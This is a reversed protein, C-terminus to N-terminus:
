DSEDTDLQREDLKESNPYHEELRMSLPGLKREGEIRQSRPKYKMIESMLKAMAEDAHQTDQATEDAIVLDRAYVYLYPNCIILTKDTLPQGTAPNAAPIFMINPCDGYKM